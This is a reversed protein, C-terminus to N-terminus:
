HGTILSGLYTLQDYSDLLSHANIIPYYLTLGIYTSVPVAFVSEFPLFLYIFILQMM